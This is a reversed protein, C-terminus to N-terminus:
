GAATGEEEGILALVLHEVSVYGDKLGQAEDEAKVFLKQLRRAVYIEGGGTVRPRKELERGVANHLDAAAIDMRKLIRPLVGEEQELLALLLHEGDVESHGYRLAKNQANQLAEQSKQTLKNPDM